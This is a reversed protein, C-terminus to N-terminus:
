NVKFPYHLGIDNLWAINEAVFNFYENYTGSQQPAKAWFEFTGVQGPAVSAEKLTTPRSLSAWTPDYFASARNRPGNTGLNLLNQKWTTNGNNRAKIELFVRQGKALNQINVPTSKSADTYATQTYPQWVYNDQAVSLPYHFGIDVMWSVNEAVINFYDRVAGSRNLTVWFEFTGYEGPGVSAETLTTPRSPSSWSSDYLNSAANNSTAFNVSNKYWTTNGTNQVRVSTYLRNGRVFADAPAITQKSSDTYLPQSVSSWKYTSPTVNFLYHQGMDNMWTIGEAVLNFYERFTGGSLPKKAWFEFTGYEGPGVSAETLTAPRSPSAWSPDYIASARNQPGSTGLNVSNKTWTTSGTNQVRLTLYVRNPSQPSLNNIDIPTSKSSDTYAAQGAYEWRYGNGLTSGFWDNFMMFFNRNGYAGCSAEGPYARLAGDNPTYPTYIYLSATAKNEIYVTKGGCGPDPHHQIYNNRFPQYNYSSMHDAYYRLQWAALRMQKYFGAKDTQCNASYGPGSDPCGYGMAYKYQSKLPWNDATLPGASEKRLMVLLVQPNIGFEQASDWIIKAASQGGTFAGGGKEFSTEGNSPNEHYNQLCVYPPGAWGKVQQAYQARTLNGYGSPGTGWTDCAPVHTNLFNQVGQVSGMSSKNYFINDDIIRGAKFDMPSVADAVIPTAGSIVIAFLLGSTLLSLIKKM